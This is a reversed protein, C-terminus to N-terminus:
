FAITDMNCRRPFRTHIERRGTFKTPIWRRYPNESYHRWVKLVANHGEQNTERALYACEEGNIVKSAPYCCEDARINVFLERLWERVRQKVELPNEWVEGFDELKDVLDEVTYIHESNLAAALYPGIFKISQVNENLNPIEVKRVMKVNLSFSEENRRRLTM